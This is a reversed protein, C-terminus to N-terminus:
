TRAGERRALMSLTFVIALWGVLMALTAPSALGRVIEEEQTPGRPLQTLTVVLAMFGLTYWPRQRDGGVLRCVAEGAAWLHISVFTIIVASWAFVVVLGFRNLFFSQLVLTRLAAVVPWTQSLAFFPGITGISAVYALMTLLGSALAGTVVHPLGRVSASQYPLVLAITSFGGVTFLTDADATFISGFAINPGPLVLHLEQARLLMLAFTVAAFAAFASFYILVARALAPMQQRAGTWAGIAIALSISLPPFTPMLVAGALAVYATLATYALGAEFLAAIGLWIHGFYPLRRVLYSAVERRPIQRSLRSIGMAWLVAALMLLLLALGGARGADAILLRPAVFIGAAFTSAATFAVAELTSIRRSGNGIM